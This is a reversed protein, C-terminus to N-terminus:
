VFQEPPKTKIKSAHMAAVDIKKMTVIADFARKAQMWWNGTGRLTCHAHHLRGHCVGNIRAGGAIM